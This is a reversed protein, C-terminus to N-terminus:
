RVNVGAKIAGGDTAFFDQLGDLVVETQILLSGDVFGQALLKVAEAFHYPTHHFSATFLLEDYHLRNTDIPVTSGREPGGFFNIRGGANVADIATEWGETTGVAEVVLDYKGEIETEAAGMERAVTEREPRRGEATVHVGRLSLARVWLLGLAGTGIVLAREGARAPSRDLGKLVCALNEALAATEFDLTDPIPHLNSAVIAEPVIVYRAFMGRLWTMDICQATMGRRCRSCVRCPASNAPVVRQGVEVGEVGEGVADVVGAGEHGLRLPLDGMRAHYGRRWVKKTTGGTLAAEVRLRVEGKGPERVPVDDIRLDEPGRLVAARMTRLTM